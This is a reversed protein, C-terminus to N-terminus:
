KHPYTRNKVGGAATLQRLKTPQSSGHRKDQNQIHDPGKGDGAQELLIKAVRGIVHKFSLDEVLSVLHRLKDALVGIVNLAVQQHDRLITEVNSKRIGYLSVPGMAQASAPNLGGDFIPVDNFSEGPRVIYLIQEKGEASTKFVKVVGSVVFYLGDAPEGELLVIEGREATKEFVLKEISHLEAPGLGSFYPISQLFELQVAM